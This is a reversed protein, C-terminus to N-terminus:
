QMLTGTLAFKKTLLYDILSLLRIPCPNLRRIASHLDRLMEETGIFNPAYRSVFQQFDTFDPYPHAPIIYNRPALLVELRVTAVWDYDRSRHAFTAKAIKWKLYVLILKLLESEMCALAKICDRIWDRLDGLWLLAISQKLSDPVNTFERLSGFTKQKYKFLAEPSLEAIMEVFLWLEQKYFDIGSVSIGSLLKELLLGELQERLLQVPAIMSKRIQSFLAHLEEEASKLPSLSQDVTGSSTFQNRADKLLWTFKNLTDNLPQETKQATKLVALCLAALSQASSDVQADTEATYLHLGDAEAEILEVSQNRLDALLFGTNSLLSDARQPSNSLRKEAEKFKHMIHSTTTDMKRLRMHKDLLWGGAVNMESHNNTEAAKWKIYLTISHAFKALRRKRMRHLQVAVQELGEAIKIIDYAELVPEDPRRADLLIDQGAAPSDLPIFSDETIYREGTPRKDLCRRFWLSRFIDGFPKEGFWTITSRLWDSYISELLDRRKRTKRNSDRSAPHSVFAAGSLRAGILVGNLAEVVAQKLEESLPDCLLRELNKEFEPDLYHQCIHRPFYRQKDLLAAALQFADKIDDGEFLPSFTLSKRETFEHPTADPLLTSTFVDRFIVRGYKNKVCRRKDAPKSWLKEGRVVMNDFEALAYWYASTMIEDTEPCGISKLAYLVRPSLKEWLIEHIKWFAVDSGSQWDRVLTEFDNTAM